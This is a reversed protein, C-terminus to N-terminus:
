NSRLTCINDPFSVRQHRRHRYQVYTLIRGRGSFLGRVWSLAILDLTYALSGRSSEILIDNWLIM